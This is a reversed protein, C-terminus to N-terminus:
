RTPSLNAVRKITDAIELFGLSFVGVSSAKRSDPLAAVPIGYHRHPTAVHFGVAACSIWRDAAILAASILGAWRSLKGHVTVGALGLGSEM